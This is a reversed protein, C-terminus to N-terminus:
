LNEEAKGKTVEAVSLLRSSIKLKAREAAALNVELRVKEDKVTFNIIGGNQLFHGTEGVTLIGTRNLQELIERTHRKESESIFLIQCSGQVERISGAHRIAFPRGNVTKGEIMKKLAGGFNDKGLVCIVIPLNTQDPLEPWDVYKAFNV